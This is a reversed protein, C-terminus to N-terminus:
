VHARGIKFETRYPRKISFTRNGVKIGNEFRPRFSLDKSNIYQLKIIDAGNESCENLMKEILYTKGLHNQCLEAIFNM